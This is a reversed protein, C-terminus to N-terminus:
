SGDRSSFLNQAAARFDAVRNKHGAFEAARESSFMQFKLRSEFLRAPQRFMKGNM